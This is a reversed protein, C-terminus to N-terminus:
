GLGAAVVAGPVVVHESAACSLRWAEAKVEGYQRLFNALVYPVGAILLAQSHKAMTVGEGTVLVM